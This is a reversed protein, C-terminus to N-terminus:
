SAREHHQSGATPSLLARLQRREERLRARHLLRGDPGAGRAAGLGRRDSASRWPAEHARWRGHRQPAARGFGRDRGRGGCVCGRAAADAAHSLAAHSRREGHPPQSGGLAHSAGNGLAAGRLLRGRRALKRWSRHPSRARAVTGGRPEPDLRRDDAASPEPGGAGPLAGDHGDRAKRGANGGPEQSTVTLTVSTAIKLNGSSGELAGVLAAPATLASARARLTLTTEGGAPIEAEVPSVDFFSGRALLTIKGSAGGANRVVVTTSPPTGGVRAGLPAAGRTFLFRAIAPSLRVTVVASTTVTGCDQIAKVRVYLTQESSVSSTPVLASLAKTRATFFLPATFTANTSAEVLYSGTLNAAATWMVVLNSGGPIRPPVVSITPAGAAACGTVQVPLTWSGGGLNAPLTATLTTAGPALAKVDFSATLNV